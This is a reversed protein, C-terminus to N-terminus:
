WHNFGRDWGPVKAEGGRYSRVVVYDAGSHVGGQASPLKFDPLIPFSRSKPHM